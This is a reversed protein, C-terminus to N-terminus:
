KKEVLKDLLYRDKGVTKRGYEIAETPCNAICACCHSCNGKWQPYGDKYDINNLVCVKKCLGCKICQETYYFKKDKVIFKYFLNNILSSQLFGFVNTKTKPLDKNEEIFRALVLLEKDSNNIINKNIQDSDLNFLMLYNEPMKIGYLGKFTLGLKDLDKKIYYEAAGFSDGYNMLVYIYNSGSFKCTRLYDSLFRPLRWGYTASVLIFSKDSYFEGRKKDKIYSFLDVVQDDLIKGLNKALYKTNGTASFYLIM